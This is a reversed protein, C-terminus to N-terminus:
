NFRYTASVNVKYATARSFMDAQASAGFRWSKSRVDVGVTANKWQRERRSGVLEFDIGSPAFSAVVTDTASNLARMYKGDVYLRVDADKIKLVRSVGLGVGGVAQRARHTEVRLAAISGQETFGDLKSSVYSAELLPSFMWNRRSLKYRAQLAMGTTQTQPAASATTPANNGVTITRRVRSDSQSYAATARVDWQNTTFQGRLGGGLRQTRTREPRAVNEAGSTRFAFASSRLHEGGVDVGAIVGNNSGDISATDINTDLHTQFWLADGWIAIGEDIERQNMLDLVYKLADAEVNQLSAYSEGTLQDFANVVEYTQLGRVESILEGLEGQGRWESEQLARAMSRQNRTLGSFEDYRTRGPAVVDPVTPPLPPPEVPLPPPIIPPTPPEVPPLPPPTVVPPQIEPPTVPPVVVPPTVPPNVPPTVPPTVPPAVYRQLILDVGDARHELSATLFAFTNQVVGDFQGVVNGARLFPYVTREAYTGTQPLAVVSTNNLTATGDVIIHDSNGLADAHIFWQGSSSTLDGTIRLSQPVSQESRFGPASPIGSPAVAAFTTASGDLVGGGVLDGLITARGVAFTQNNLDVFSNASVNLGVLLPDSPTFNTPATLRMGLSGDLDLSSFNAFPTPTFEWEYVTGTHQLRLTNHGSEGDVTGSLASLDTAQLTVRDNGAGLMLSGNVTTARVDDDFGSLQIRAGNAVGVSATYQQAVNVQGSQAFLEGVFLANNGGLTLTGSGDKRVTDAGSLAATLSWDHAATITSNRQIDLLRFTNNLSTTNTLVGGDLVLAGSVGMSQASALALVGNRVVVNGSSTNVGSLTTTSPATLVLDGAGSMGGAFNWNKLSSMTLAGNLVVPNYFMQDVDSDLSGKYVILSGGGLEPNSAMDITGDQLVVNGFNIWPGNFRLRGAGTKTLTGSGGIRGSFTLDTQADITGATAMNIFFNNLGINQGSSRLVGNGSGNFTLVGTSTAGNAQVNLVGNGIMTYATYTNTARLVTEGSGIKNLGGGGSITNNFILKNPGDVVMGGVQLRIQQDLAIQSAQAQITAGEFTTLGSGLNTGDNLWVTTGGRLTASGSVLPGHLHWVGNEVVLDSYNLYDESSATNDGPANLTLTQSRAHPAFLILGLALALTSRGLNFRSASRHHPM